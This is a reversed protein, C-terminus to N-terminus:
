YTGELGLHLPGVVLRVRSASSKPPTAAHSSTLLLFAGVAGVLLGGGVAVDAITAATNAKKNKDVANQDTCTAASSCKASWAYIGFGLGAGVAALGAGIGVLGLTHRTGDTKTEPPPATSPENEDRRPPPPPPVAAPEPELPPVLLAKKSDGVDITVETSFPRRGQAKAMVHHKGPDVPFPSEWMARPVDLDDITLALSPEDHEFRVTLRSLKKELRAARSQAAPQRDRRGDRRALSAADVYEAWATATKGQAEHCAALALLTGSGPDLRESEALKPCAEDYHHADFAQMGERFLTEAMTVPSQAHAVRASGLILALACLWRMSTM